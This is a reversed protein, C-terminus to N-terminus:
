AATEFTFGTAEKLVERIARTARNDPISSETNADEHWGSVEDVWYSGSMEKPGNCLTITYRNGFDGCSSDSIYFDIPKRCGKWSIVGSIEPQPYNGNNNSYGDPDYNPSNEWSKIEVEYTRKAKSM